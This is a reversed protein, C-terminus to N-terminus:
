VEPHEVIWRVLRPWYARVDPFPVADGLAARTNTVDFRVDQDIYALSELPVGAAKRILGFGLIREATQKSLVASAPRRGLTQLTLDVFDRLPLPDPDAIHFTRGVADERAAIHVMADVLFDVPVVNMRSVGTGIHAYPLWAPTRLMARVMLYPGDAKPTEGTQSHGVVVAPRFIVSPVEAARARVLKESEFKTSEYHNRFTQGVDLESELVLGERGGATVISSVHFLRRLGDVSACFDLVRTTGVVNV